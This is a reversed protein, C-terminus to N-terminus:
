TQRTDPFYSYLTSIILWHLCDTYMHDLDWILNFKEKRRNRKM